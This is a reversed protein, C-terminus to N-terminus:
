DDRSLREAISQNRRNEREVDNKAELYSMFLAFAIIVVALGWVPSGLYHLSLMMLGTVALLGVSLALVFVSFKVFRIATFKVISPLQM